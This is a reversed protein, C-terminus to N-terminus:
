TRRGACSRQNKVTFHRLQAVEFESNRGLKAMGNWNKSVQAKYALLDYLIVIFLRRTLGIDENIVYM